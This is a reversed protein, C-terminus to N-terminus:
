VIAVISNLITRVVDAQRKAGTKAFISKLYSRVTHETLHLHKAVDGTLSGSCLHEAIAAELGTMGFLSCLRKQFLLDGSPHGRVRHLYMHLTPDGTMSTASHGFPRTLLIQIAPAGNVETLWEGGEEVIASAAQEIESALAASSFQLKRDPGVCTAKMESLIEFAKRGVGIVHLYPSLIVATLDIQENVRSFLTQDVELQDRLIFSRLATPLHPILEDVMEAAQSSIRGEKCALTLWASTGGPEVARTVVVDSMGMPLLYNRYFENKCRNPLGLISELQYSRGPRMSHYPFPDKHLFEEKYRARHEPNANDSDFFERYTSRKGRSRAIIISAYSLNFARRVQGLFARWPPTEHVGQHLALLLVLLEM